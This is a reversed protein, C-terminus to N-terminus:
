SRVGRARTVRVANEALPVITIPHESYITVDGHRMAWALDLTLGSSPVTVTLRPPVSATVAPADPLKRQKM